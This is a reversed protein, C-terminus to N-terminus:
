LNWGHTSLIKYSSKMLSIALAKEDFWYSYLVINNLNNESIFKNISTEIIIAKSLYQWATRFTYINLNKKTLLEIIEKCFIKKFLSLIRSKTRKPSNAIIKNSDFGVYIDEDTKSTIFFVQDFAKELFPYETRIFIESNKFPFGDSLLILKKKLENM